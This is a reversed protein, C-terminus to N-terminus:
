LQSGLRIRVPLDRQERNTHRVRGGRRNDPVRPCRVDPCEASATPVHMRASRSLLGMHPLHDRVCRGGRPWRASRRKCRLGRDRSVMRHRLGMGGAATHVVVVQESCRHLRPSLIHEGNNAKLHVAARDSAAPAAQASAIPAAWRLPRYPSVLDNFRTWPNRQAALWRSTLSGGRQGAFV